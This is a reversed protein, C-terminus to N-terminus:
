NPGTASVVATVSVTAGPSTPALATVNARAYRSGAGSVPVVGGITSTTAGLTRWISNDMSGELQVTLSAASGTVSVTMQLRDQVTGFDQALGPGTTSASTLSPM